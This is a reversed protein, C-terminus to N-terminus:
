MDLFVTTSAVIPTGTILDIVGLHANKSTAESVAGNLQIQSGMIKANGGATLEVDGSADVKAKVCAIEVDSSATIKAKTCTIECDGTITFIKKGGVEETSDMTVKLTHAKLVEVTLNEIIKRLEDKGIETNLIETIKVTKNKVVKETWSGDKLIEFQTGLKHAFKIYEEGEKDDFVLIHGSNTKWGMRFPYNIKFEADIDANKSYIMCRWRPEPLEVDSTDHSGDNVAIEIELEDGVKPVFFMGAGKASAFPFCPYAPLPYEGDFLTAAEFFIGGRLGVGLDDDTNRTVIANHIEKKAM